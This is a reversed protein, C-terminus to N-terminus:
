YPHLKVWNRLRTRTKSCDRRVKLFNTVHSAFYEDGRRQGVGVTTDVKSMQNFVDLCVDPYAKLLHTAVGAVIDAGVVSMARGNHQAGFCLANSGLLEDGTHPLFVIVIEGSKM